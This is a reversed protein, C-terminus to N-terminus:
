IPRYELGCTCIGTKSFFADCCDKCCPKHCHSCVMFPEPGSYVPKKCGPGQCIPQSDNSVYLFAQGTAENQAEIDYIDLGKPFRREVFEKLMSFVIIASHVRYDVALAVFGHLVPTGKVFENIEEEQIGLIISSLLICFLFALVYSTAVYKARTMRKKLKKRFIVMVLLLYLLVCELGQIATAAMRLPTNIKEGSHMYALRLINYVVSAMGFVSITIAEPELIWLSSIPEQLFDLNTTLRNESSKWQPIVVLSWLCLLLSVASLGLQVSHRYDEQSGTHVIVAYAFSPIIVVLIGLFAFSSLIDGLRLQGSTTASYSFFVQNGLRVCHLQQECVRRRLNKVNSTSAINVMYEALGTIRNRIADERYDLAAIEKKEELIPLTLYLSASLIRFFVVSSRLLPRLTNWMQHGIVEGNDHDEKCIGNAITDIWRTYNYASMIFFISKLWDPLPRHAARRYQVEYYLQSGQTLFSIGAFFHYLLEGTARKCIISKAVEICEFLIMLSTLILLVICVRHLQSTNEPSEVSFKISSSSIDTYGGTSKEYFRRDIMRYAITVVHLLTFSVYLLNFYAWVPQSRPWKWVPGPKDGMSKTTEASCRYKGSVVGGTSDNFHGCMYAYRNYDLVGAIVAVAVSVVVVITIHYWKM